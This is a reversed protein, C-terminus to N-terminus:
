PASFVELAVLRAEPSVLRVNAEIARLHAEVAVAGVGPPGYVTYLASTTDPKIRTRSDPGYIIDSMIGEGDAVFMDGAKLTTEKASMTTFTEVGTSSSLRAPLALTDLDHGATLLGSELEAVFMAEVLAGVRPISRGKLAISEIQAQVHYTNGFRRYYATYAPLPPRAAIEARSKGALETRLARELADARSDLPARATPDSTNSAGSLALVGVAAGPHDRRWEDTVVFIESM